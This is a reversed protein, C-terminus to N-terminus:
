RDQGAALVSVLKRTVAEIQGADLVKLTTRPPSGAIVMEVIRM